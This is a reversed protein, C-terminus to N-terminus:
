LQGAPQLQGQKALTLNGERKWAANRKRVRNPLFSVHQALRALVQIDQALHSKLVPHGATWLLKSVGSKEPMAQSIQSM